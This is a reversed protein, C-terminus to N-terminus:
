ISDFLAILKKAIVAHGEDNFHLGDPAFAAKDEEKSPDIGLDRYLDLVYVGYDKAVTKIADVYDILPRGEPDNSRKYSLAGDGVRRAPALFVIPKGEYRMHFLEMMFRTAGCFTAATKDEFSGFPADGHGYDNTGGFVVVADLDLPLNCPRTAAM